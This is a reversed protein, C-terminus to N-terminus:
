THGRTCAETQGRGVGGCVCVCVCLVCVCHEFCQTGATKVLYKSIEIKLCRRKLFM